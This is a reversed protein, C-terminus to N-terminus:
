EEGLLAKLAKDLGTDPLVVFQTKKWSFGYKGADAAFNLAHMVSLANTLHIGKVKCAESLNVKGDKNISRGIKADVHAGSLAAGFDCGVQKAITIAEEESVRGNFVIQIQECVNEMLKSYRGDGFIKAVPKNQTAPMDTVEPM